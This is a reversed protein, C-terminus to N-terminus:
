IVPIVLLNMQDKDFLPRSHSTDTSGKARVTIYALLAFFLIYSTLNDFVFFNHIFYGALMGTLIAKESLPMGNNNKWMFWLTVGYLSLYTLLGLAGAAVLWDFFVNHSRDYWPELNCM